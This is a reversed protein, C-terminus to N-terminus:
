ETESKGPYGTTNLTASAWIDCALPSAPFGECDCCVPHRSIAEFDVNVSENSASTRTSSCRLHRATKVVEIRPTERMRVAAGALAAVVGDLMVTDAHLETAGLAVVEAGLMEQVKVDSVRETEM